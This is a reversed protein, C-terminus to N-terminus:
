RRSIGDPSPQDATMRATKGPLPGVNLEAAAKGVVQRAHRLGIRVM